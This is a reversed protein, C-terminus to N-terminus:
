LGSRCKVVLGMEAQEGWSTHSPDELANGPPPRKAEEREGGMGNDRWEREVDYGGSCARRAKAECKSRAICRVEYRETGDSSSQLSQVRAVPPKPERCGLAGILAFPVVVFGFCVSRTSKRGITM